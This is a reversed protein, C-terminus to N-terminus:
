KSDNIKIAGSCELYDLCAAVHEVDLSDYIGLAMLYGKVLELKQPVRGNEVFAMADLLRLFDGARYLEIDTDRKLGSRQCVTNIYKDTLNESPPAWKKIIAEVTMTGSLKYQRILYAAARYGYKMEEFEEFEKDKKAEGKIKGLWDSKASFRINLPNNNRIGRPTQTEM